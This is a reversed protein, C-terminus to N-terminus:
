RSRLPLELLSVSGTVLRQANRLREAGSVNTSSSAQGIEADFPDDGGGTRLRSIVGQM